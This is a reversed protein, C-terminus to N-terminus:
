KIFGKEKATSTVEDLMKQFGGEDLKKMIDDWEAKPDDGKSVIFKTLLSNVDVAFVDKLPTSMLQINFDNPTPIGNKENWDYANMCLDSVETPVGPKYIFEKGEQWEALFNFGYLFTYKDNLNGYNGKDDKERLIEAKGDAGMKYDVGEIGYKALNVWEPTRCWDFLALLRDLKADDVKHSFYAESWFKTTNFYYTKGDNKNPLYPIYGVAKYVDMDPFNLKMKDTIYSVTTEPLLQFTAMAAKGAAFKALGEDTKQIAFDPDILGDKYLNRIELMAEYAGPQQIGKQVKGDVVVWDGFGVPCFVPRIYDMLFGMDYTTIGITDKVGNGDPDGEVLAKLVTKFEDYTTPTKLSLKDM